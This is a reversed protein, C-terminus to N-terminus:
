SEILDCKEVSTIEAIFFLKNLLYLSCVSMLYSVSCLRFHFSCDVSIIHVVLEILFMVESPLLLSNRVFKGLSNNVKM